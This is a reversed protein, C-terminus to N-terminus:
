FVRVSKFSAPELSKHQSSFQLKQGNKRATQKNHNNNDPIM